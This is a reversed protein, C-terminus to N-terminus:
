LQGKLAARAQHQWGSKKGPWRAESRGGHGSTRNSPATLRRATPAVSPPPTAALAVTTSKSLRSTHIRRQDTSGNIRRDTSGNIRQDTPGHSVMKYKYTVTPDVACIKIVMQEDPALEKSAKLACLVAAATSDTWRPAYERVSGHAERRAKYRKARGGRLSRPAGAARNWAVGM